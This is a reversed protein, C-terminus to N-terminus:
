TRTEYKKREDREVVVNKEKMNIYSKRENWVQLVRGVSIEIRFIIRDRNRYRRWISWLHGHGGHLQSMFGNYGLVTPLSPVVPASFVFLWQDMCTEMFEFVPGEASKAMSAGPACALSWWLQGSWGHPTQFIWFHGCLVSRFCCVWSQGGPWRLSSNRALSLAHDLHPSKWFDTFYWKPEKMGNKNNGKTWEKMSENTRLEKM